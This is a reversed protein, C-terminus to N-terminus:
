LRIKLQPQPAIASHLKTLGKEEPNIASSAYDIQHSDGSYGTTPSPLATSVGVFAVWLIRIMM